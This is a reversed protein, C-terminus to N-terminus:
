LFSFSLMYIVNVSLKLEFSWNLYETLKLAYLLVVAYITLEIIVIHHCSDNGM